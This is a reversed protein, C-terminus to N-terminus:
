HSEHPPDGSPPAAGGPADPLSFSFISGQGPVSAVWLEGGHQEAASRSVALGIGSGEYADNPHLREFVGFIRDFYQAEIGIGNDAVSVVWRGAERRAGVTVHPPREPARFKLANTLLNLLLHRLLEANGQVTPLPGVEVVAGTEAVKTGLDALVQASLEALDVPASVPGASRVRSFALLDQILNKLRRTASITFAIYQDARADLRGQYRRALLETYSGITRLPEQLDHSAVYAFRELERNSRSLSVNSARLAEGAEALARERRRVEQAMRGFQAGLVDLERVGTRALQRDYNGAAVEGAGRTFDQMGRSVTRASRRSAWLLLAACALVGAPTGWQVARLTRRSQALAAALRRNENGVMIGLRTRAQELQRRGSGDAVLAAAGALSRRRATIEQAAPGSAWVQVDTNLRTLNSRQLATAVRARLRQVDRAFSAQARAYAELYSDDGTIVFGRQNNELNVIDSELSRILGLRAQSAEVDQVSRGNVNVGYLVAAALLVLLLLPALLPRLILGSLTAGGLAGGVPACAPASTPLPASM